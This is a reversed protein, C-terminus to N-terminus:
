SRGLDSDAALTIQGRETPSISASVGDLFHRVGARVRGRVGGGDHGFVFFIPFVVNFPPVMGDLDAVGERITAVDDDPLEAPAMEGSYPERLVGLLCGDRDLSGDNVRGFPHVAM